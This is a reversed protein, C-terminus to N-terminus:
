PMCTKLSNIHGKKRPKGTIADQILTFVLADLVIDTVQTGAKPGDSPKFM